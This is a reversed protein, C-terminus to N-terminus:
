CTRGPVKLTAAVIYTLGGETFFTLQTADGFMRDGVARPIEACEAADALRVPADSPWEVVTPPLETTVTEPDVPTARMLYGDSTMPGERGLEGEGVTNALDTAATVFKFLNSRARDTEGEFGLAYAAHRYTNGDVTITM